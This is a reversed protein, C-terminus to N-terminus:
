AFLERALWAPLHNVLKPHPGQNTVVVGVAEGATNLIPSGSMGGQIAPEADIGFAQRNVHLRCPRWAGELYFLMAADGASDSLPMTTCAGVMEDYAEWAETLLQNDPEGLVAIDAVPDVFLCEAAVSPQEQLGGLLNRYTREELLSFSM